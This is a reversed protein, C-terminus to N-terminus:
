TNSLKKIVKRKRVNDVTAGVGLIGAITTIVAVPNLTGGAAVLLANQLLADKILDQQDLQDYRLEAMSLLNDIEMHLLQRTVQTEPHLLSPVKSQCGYFWILLTTAIVIAITGYREHNFLENLISKITMHDPEKWGTM